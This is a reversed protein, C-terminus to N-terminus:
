SKWVDCNRILPLIRWFVPYDANGLRDPDGGEGRNLCSKPHCLFFLFFNQEGTVYARLGLRVTHPFKHPFPYGRGCTYFFKM